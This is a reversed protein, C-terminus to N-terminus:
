QFVVPPLTMTPAVREGRFFRAIVDRIAASGFVDFVHFANELVVVTAAPLTAAIERAPENSASRALHAM